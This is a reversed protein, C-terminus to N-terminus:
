FFQYYFYKTLRFKYFAKPTHYQNDQLHWVRSFETNRIMQPMQKVNDDTPKLTFDYPIFDNKPPLALNDNFGINLWKQIKEPPIDQQTYQTSFWKETQDAITTFQKSVVTVRMRDPTLHNLLDTILDPRFEDMTYKASMCEDIPYDKLM